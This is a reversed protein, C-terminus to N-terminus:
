TPLVRELAQFLGPVCDLTRLEAPDFWRYETNERDLRLHDPNELRFLFPYVKWRTDIGPDNVILPEGASLFTIDAGQLGAEERMEVLAQGLPPINELYGSIGAWLGRYTSVSGSRRFLLVRGDRFLFTSIVTKVTM